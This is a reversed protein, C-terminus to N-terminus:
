KERKYTIAVNTMLVTSAVSIANELACRVVKAPDIIGSKVMNVVMKYDKVDYGEYLADLESFEKESLSVGANSLITKFPASLSESLVKYGVSDNNKLANISFFENYM